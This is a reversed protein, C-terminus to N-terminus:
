KERSCVSCKRYIDYFSNTLVNPCLEEANFSNATLNFAYNMDEENLIKEMLGNESRM